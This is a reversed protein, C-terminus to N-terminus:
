IGAGNKKADPFLYGSAMVGDSSRPGLNTQSASVMSLVQASGNSRTLLVHYDINIYIGNLFYMNIQIYGM